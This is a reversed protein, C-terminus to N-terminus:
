IYTGQKRIIRLPTKIKNGELGLKEPEVYEEKGVITNKGEFFYKRGVVYQPFDM